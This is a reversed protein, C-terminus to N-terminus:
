HVLSSSGAALVAVIAALYQISLMILDGSPDAPDPAWTQLQPEFTETLM